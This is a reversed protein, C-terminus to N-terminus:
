TGAAVPREIPLRVHFTTGTDTNSEFRLSGGHRRVIVNRAITLGQGIGKGVEKTTFFPDFIKQQIDPAIGAGSDAISVVADGGDRRTVVTINGKGGTKAAKDACAEAANILINLLAQKLEAGYCIVEPLAGLETNVEAVNVYDNRAVVMLNKIALNLDFPSMEKQDPASFEKMSSIIIAIRGLGEASSTLAAPLNEKLFTLDEDAAATQPQSAELKQVHSLLDQVADRIFSINDTVFQVPTNIEHALGAALRGVSDLRQAVMEELQRQQLALMMVQEQAAARDRYAADRQLQNLRAKSHYRIRAILEIPDPLKILYDNAGRAFAQSKTIPEENTSLVIIPIDSTQQNDRYQQVLTLGDIKPMVLDQPIVTPQFEAAIKIAEAPDQCYRFELNPQAMLARRIAEGIMAQDDVLLVKLPYEALTSTTAAAPVNSEQM